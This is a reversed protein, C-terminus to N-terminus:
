LFDAKFIQLICLTEHPFGDSHKYLYKRVEKVARVMQNKNQSKMMRRKAGEVRRHPTTWSVRSWM